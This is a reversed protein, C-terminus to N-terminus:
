IEEATEPGAPPQIPQVRRRLVLAHMVPVVLLTMVTSVALGGVVARALPVMTENGEGFGLALPLLGLITALATMLIPRIRRKGAELVAREASAGAHVMRNAFDVLLISNSVVIGMMMLTGIMSEVNVSTDTFHLILITGIWGLPVAVLIILPDIFSRFLGVMVLYILLVALPLALAFNNFASRMNAVEGKLQITVDKPLTVTALVREIDKAVHGLDNGVPTVLVNILRSLDYHDVSDPGTKMNLTAVDRLLVPPGRREDAAYFGNSLDLNRGAFPTNQLAVISGGSGASTLSSTPNLLTRAGIIPINLLDETKTLSQEPYQALLYYGNATKPDIWFNPSLAINSSIGTIVDVIVRDQTIGYYAAKTRDVDIHLEPYSKGQKIRVDVTNPVQAIKQQIEEAVPRILDLRPGKVQIDIPARLGFNLVDSIIGGTQFSVEVGPLEHRLKERMANVYDETNGEHGTMLNVLVFATHNGTNPAFRAADGFYLGTNSIVEELDQKPITEQVLKEIDAVIATTKEIRSGEPASVIMTFNGADVKPFFESHLRPLLLAGTGLLALLALLIVVAKFRVGARLLPEYVALVFRFWDKQDAEEQSGSGHGRHYLRSLVVPTVTMSVAYDALMAFAVTMALPVFLYKIIGSFFMIPLYVILICITAVLIPLTLEIASDEAASRGDKGMELHRHLNEQVVINNDLLTGIVLALGGLTMINVSQGTLYLAVLAATLSLPIALAVVLAAKISRLFLFIMLGALGAGLLGEKQLNAIAQRIYLSQDYLFKVTTGAPIETLKPLKARIGDTVELTNAGEQRTIPIYTAERGNVRVISTQIAASDAATGIDRVLIPTGNVVKIPIDNIKDVADILSNSYVYYDLDGIKIDGAPIIASQSNIAKVVDSPSVGRAMMRSPDMFVTIQRVKGGLPPGFSIGPITAIQSRINFYALDRIEKPGLTDSSVSLLGIPLSSVGFKYVSPPYVGPPLQRIISFALSTLESQASDISYEPQFFVKIYSMGALSQSEIHEVYSAEVFRQELKLTIAGEMESPSMGRYFTTVLISPIKIEPFIDVRMKQYSVGGLVLAIMCIAFVAYPNKLAARTLM